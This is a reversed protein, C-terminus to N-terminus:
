LYPNEPLAKIKWGQQRLSAILESSPTSKFLAATLLGSKMIGLACLINQLRINFNLIFKLKRDKFSRGTSSTFELGAFYSDNVALYAVHTFHMGLLFKDLERESISYVYNGVPEFYHQSATGRLLKKLFYFIFSFPARDAIQDRPETLIVAKKAVRFMEYLAMYPRPFHHFSEKCYVFDFSNNDFQISEANQVSFDKIFGKENGIKLLTDTIDTCHVDPAGANLLYNADTGFRGDGVTLWSGEAYNEIFCKIPNRMREHRWADLTDSRFWTEGVKIRDADSLVKSWEDKHADSLRNAWEQESSHCDGDAPSNM